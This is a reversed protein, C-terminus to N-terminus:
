HCLVKIIGPHEVTVRGIVATPLSYGEKRLRSILVEANGRPLAILLGGSTQADNLVAIADEPCGAYQVLCETAAANAKSGPPINGRGALELVRPLLPVQSFDIEYGVEGLALMDQAHGILGFGTIDTSAHADLENLLLSAQQNLTAMMDCAAAVEQDSVDGTAHSHIVIGTGIPKTLVLADGAKPTTNRVIRDPHAIGTVSLGFMVTKSQITHGGVIVAGAEELKAQAGSLIAVLRTQPEKPPTALLNLATLPRAGMAYLDSLANAAAIAGFARADSIHPPFFDASQVIALDPTLRYVGADAGHEPPVLLDPHKM